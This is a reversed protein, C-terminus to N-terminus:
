DMHTMWEGIQEQDARLEKAEEKFSVMKNRLTTQMLKEKPTREVLTRVM